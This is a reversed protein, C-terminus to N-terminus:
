RGSRMMGKPDGKLLGVEETREEPAQLLEAAKQKDETNNKPLKQAPKLQHCTGQHHKCRGKSQERMEETQDQREM